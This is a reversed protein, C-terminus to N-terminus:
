EIAMTKLTNREVLDHSTYSKRVASEVTIELALAIQIGFYESAKEGVRLPFAAPFPHM